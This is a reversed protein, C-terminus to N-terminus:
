VRTVTNKDAIIRKMEKWYEDIKQPDSGDPAWEPFITNDRQFPGKATEKFVFVESHIILMHYLMERMSYFFHRGSSVPGLPVVKRVEGFDDFILATAKGEVVHFSEASERHKHPRVYTRRHHVVLMEHVEDSESQHICTRFKGSPNAAALKKVRDLFVNDLALFEGPSFEVEIENQDTM